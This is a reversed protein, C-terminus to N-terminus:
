TLLKSKIIKFVKHAFSDDILTLAISLYEYVQTHEPVQNALRYLFKEGFRSIQEEDLRVFFPLFINAFDVYLEAQDDDADDLSIAMPELIDLIMTLTDDVMSQVYHQELQSNTLFLFSRFFLELMDINEPIGLNELHGIM